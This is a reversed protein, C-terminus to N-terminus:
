IRIPEKPVYSLQEAGNKTILIDDELRIGFKGQWYLGPEVTYAMNEKFVLDNRGKAGMIDGVSLPHGLSHMFLTHHDFGLRELVERCRVAPINIPDGVNMCKNAAIKSEYLANYAKLFDDHPNDGVWFTWTIDSKIEQINIGMDILLVGNEIKASSSNHHPDASHKGTAVISEFSPKGIKLIEYEILAKLELETMGSEFVTPVKELIKITQNVAKRYINIDDESLISRLKMIISSASVFETTPSWKKIENYEGVRLYDAYRTGQPSFLNEGYNLAIKKNQIFENINKGFDSFKKIVKVNIGLQQTDIAKQFMPSEMVGSLVMHEGDRDILICHPAHSGIGLLYSSHMDSGSSSFILWADLDTENIIKQAREIRNIGM